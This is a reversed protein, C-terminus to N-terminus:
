AHPEWPVGAVLTQACSVEAASKKKGNLIYVGIM